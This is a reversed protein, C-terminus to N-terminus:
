GYILQHLKYSLGESKQSISNQADNVSTTFDDYSGTPQALLAYLNCIDTTYEDIDEIINEYEGSIYKDNKLNRWEVLTDTFDNYENDIKKGYITDDICDLVATSFDKFKGNKKLTWKDTQKDRDKFICNLWTNTIKNASKSLDAVVDDTQFILDQSNKVFERKKERKEKEDQIKKQKAQEEAKKKEEVKKQEEIRKNNEKVFYYAVGGSIAVVVLIAIIIIVIKKRKKSKKNQKYANERDADSILKGCNPCKEAVDSIKKKCEPCKILAMYIGGNTIIKKIM